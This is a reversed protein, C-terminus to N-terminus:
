ALRAIKGAARSNLAVGTVRQGEIWYGKIDWVAERRFWILYPVAYSAEAIDTASPGEPGSPHSHFIGVLELGNAEIWDFARLQELPDMRFRIESKAQNTVPIVKEVANRKGALLGCAELPLCGNVHLRMAELQGPTLVLSRM